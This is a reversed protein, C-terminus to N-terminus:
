LINKLFSDNQQNREESVEQIYLSTCFCLRALNPKASKRFSLLYVDEVTFVNLYPMGRCITSCLKTYFEAIVTIFSGGVIM